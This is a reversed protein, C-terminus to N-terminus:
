TFTAKRGSGRDDSGGFDAVSVGSPLVLHVVGEVGGDAVAEPDLVRDEEGAHAADRGCSTAATELAPPSPMM